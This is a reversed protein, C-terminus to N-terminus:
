AATVKLKESILNMITKSHDFIFFHNGEFQKVIVPKTTHLQWQGAEEVTADLETGVYADIPIDLVPGAVYEYTEIAKFDARLM